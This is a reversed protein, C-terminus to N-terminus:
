ELPDVIVDEDPGQESSDDDPGEKREESVTDDDSADDDGDEDDDDEDVSPRRAFMGEGSQPDVDKIHSIAAEFTALYYGAEGMRRDPDVFTLMEEHLSLMHPLSAGVLVYIFIPLFDDAGLYTQSHPHEISFITPIAKCVEILHALRDHPLSHSRISRLLDVASEWSSPSIFEVTIGFFSQPLGRLAAVQQQLPLEWGYFAENMVENVRGACPLYVEVEVQKRLAEKVVGKVDEESRRGLKALARERPSLSHESQAPEQESTRAPEEKGEKEEKEEDLYTSALLQRAEEREEEDMHSSSRGREAVASPSVVATQEQEEAQARAREEQWVEQKAAIVEKLVEEGDRWLGEFLIGHLNHMFDRLDYLVEKASDVTYTRYADEEAESAFNDLFADLVRDMITMQLCAHLYVQLYAQSCGDRLTSAQEMASITDIHPRLDLFDQMARHVAETSPHLSNVCVMSSAKRLFKHLLSVRETVTAKDDVAGAFRKPPFEIARISPRIGLLVERFQWFESFRRRVVWEQGSKVDMVWVAYWMHSNEVDEEARLIRTALAPRLDRTSLVMPAAKSIGSFSHRSNSTNSTTSLSRAPAKAVDDDGAGAAAGESAAPSGLLGMENALSGRKAMAGAERAQAQAMIAVEGGEMVVGGEWAVVRALIRQLCKTVYNAREASIINQEMLLSALRHFERHEQTDRSRRFHLTVYAPRRRLMEEVEGVGVGPALKVEDIGLLVDGVKVGADFGIHKMCRDVPRTHGTLPRVGSGLRGSPSDGAGEADASSRYVTIDEDGGSSTTADGDEPRTLDKITIESDFASITDGMTGITLGLLSNTRNFLISFETYTENFSHVTLRFRPAVVFNDPLIMM